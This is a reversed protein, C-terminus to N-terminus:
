TEALAAGYDGAKKELDDLAALLDRTKEEREDLMRVRAALLQQFGALVDTAKELGTRRDAEPKKEAEAPKDAAAKKPGPPPAGPGDPAARDLGAEKRLEGAIKLREAQGQEEAQRLFPDKLGDLKARAEAVAAAAKKYAAQGSLLRAGKNALDQ